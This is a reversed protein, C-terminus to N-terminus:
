NRRAAVRQPANRCATVNHRGTACQPMKRNMAVYQSTRRRMVAARQPVNRCMTACQSTTVNRSM